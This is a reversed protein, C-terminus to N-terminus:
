KAEEPKFDIVNASYLGKLGRVEYSWEDKDPDYIRRVIQTDFQEGNWQLTVCQYQEFHPKSINM